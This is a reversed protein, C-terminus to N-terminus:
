LVHKFNFDVDNKYCSYVSKYIQTHTISINWLCMTNQFYNYHYPRWMYSILISHRIFVFFVYYLLLLMCLLVFRCLLLGLIYNM